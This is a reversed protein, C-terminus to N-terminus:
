FIDCLDKSTAQNGIVDDIILNLVDIHKTTKDKEDHTSTVIAREVLRLVTKCGVEGM